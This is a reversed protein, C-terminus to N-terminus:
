SLRAQELLRRVPAEYIPSTLGKIIGDANAVYNQIEKTRQDNKNSPVWSLFQNLAEGMRKQLKEGIIGFWYSYHSWIESQVLPYNQLDGLLNHLDISFQLFHSFDQLVQDPIERSGPPLLLRRIFEEPEAILKVIDSFRHGRITFSDLMSLLFSDNLTVMFRRDLALFELFLNPLSESNTEVRGHASSLRVRLLQPLSVPYFKEYYNRVQTNGLISKAEEWFAGGDPEGIFRTLAAIELVSYCLLLDDVGARLFRERPSYVSQRHHDRLVNALQMHERRAIATRLYEAASAVHVREYYVNRLDQFNAAGINM